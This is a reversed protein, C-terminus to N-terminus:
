PGLFDLVAATFRDAAEVNSLHAAELEVYRTGRITEAFWRGAAPPTATDHAGAIVLVPAAVDRTADRLDADRVAACGAAYGEVPTALLTRRVAEVV